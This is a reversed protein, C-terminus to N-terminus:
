YIIDYHGPRYLIFIQPTSDEPFCHAKAAKGQETRDLYIIGVPIQLASTLAIIHIHDSERYMPEVEKLYGNNNLANSDFRDVKM